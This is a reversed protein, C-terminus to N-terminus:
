IPEHTIAENKSFLNVATFLKYLEMTNRPNYGTLEQIKNLRYQLTNKHIFLQKSTANLSTNNDIYVRLLEEIRKIEDRTLSGLVQDIFSDAMENNVDHFLLELSYENFSFIGKNYKEKGITLTKKAQYYARQCDAYTKIRESIGVSVNKKYKEELYASILDLERKVKELEYFTFMIVIKGEQESVLHQKSLKKEISGIILDSTIKAKDEDVVDILALYKLEDVEKGISNGILILSEYNDNGFILEHIFL